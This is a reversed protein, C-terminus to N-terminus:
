ELGKTYRDKGWRGLGILDGIGDRVKKWDSPIYKVDM